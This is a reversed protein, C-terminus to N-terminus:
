DQGSSWKLRLTVVSQDAGDPERHDDPDILAAARRDSSLTFGAAADFRGSVLVVKLKDLGNLLASLDDDIPATMDQAHPDRATFSWVWFNGDRVLTSTGALGSRQIIRLGLADISLGRAQTRVTFPVDGRLVLTRIDEFGLERLGRVIPHDQRQFALQYNHEENERDAAAQADSRVDSETVVWTVAGDAELYWTETVDKQLCGSCLMLAAVVAPIVRSTM